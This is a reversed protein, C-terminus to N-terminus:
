TAHAIPAADTIATPPAPQLLGPGFGGFMASQWRGPHRCGNGGSVECSACPDVGGESSAPTTPTTSASTTMASPDPMGPAPGPGPITPLVFMPTVVVFSSPGTHGIVAGVLPAGQAGATFVMAHM